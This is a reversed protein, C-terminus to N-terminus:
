RPLRHLATGGGFFLPALGGGELTFRRLRRISGTGATQQKSDVEEEVAREQGFVNDGRQQVGEAEGDDPLPGRGGV